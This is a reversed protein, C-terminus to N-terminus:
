MGECIHIQVVHPLLGATVGEGVYTGEHTADYPVPDSFGQLAVSIFLYSLYIFLYISPHISSFISPHFFLSPILWFVIHDNIM